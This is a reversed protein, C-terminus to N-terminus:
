RSVSPLNSTSNLQEYFAFINQPSFVCINSVFRAFEQACCFLITVAKFYKRGTVLNNFRMLLCYIIIHFIDSLPSSEIKAAWCGQRRRSLPSVQHERTPDFCDNFKVNLRCQSQEQIVNSLRFVQCWNYVYFVPSPRPLGEDFCM